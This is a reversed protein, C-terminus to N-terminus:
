IDKERDDYRVYYINQKVFATDNGYRNETYIICHMLGKEMYIIYM